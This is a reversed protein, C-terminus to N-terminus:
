VSYTFNCVDRISLMVSNKKYDYNYSHKILINYSYNSVM